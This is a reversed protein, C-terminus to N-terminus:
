MVEQMMTKVAPYKKAYSKVTPFNNVTVAHHLSYLGGALQERQARPLEVDLLDHTLRLAMRGATLATSAYGVYEISRFMDAEPVSKKFLIPM